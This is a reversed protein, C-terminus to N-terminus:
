CALMAYAAEPIMPMYLIVRDGKTIGHEKLVNAMRSTQELLEKYTIHRAPAAPDDPEFIIATQDGRTVVHRDICNASINLTGDEFWKIDVNGLDFSTNKVRTYPRIWDIRKGHARWFGEPDNISAAYLKEYGSADVHARAIFDASASYSGSNGQDSM